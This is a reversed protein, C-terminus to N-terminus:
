ECHPGDVLLHRNNSGVNGRKELASGFIPKLADRLTELFEGLSKKFEILLLIALDLLDLKSHDM